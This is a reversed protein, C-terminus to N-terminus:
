SRSRQERPFKIIFGCVVSAQKNLGMHVHPGTGWASCSNGVPRGPLFPTTHATTPSCRLSLDTLQPHQCLFIKILTVRTFSSSPTIPHTHTRAYTRTCVMCVPHITSVSTPLQHVCRSESATNGPYNYVLMQALSM